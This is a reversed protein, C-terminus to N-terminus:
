YTSFAIILQNNELRNPSLKLASNLIRSPPIANKALYHKMSIPHLKFLLSILLKHCPKTATFIINYRKQQLNFEDDNPSHYKNNSVDIFGLLIQYYTM